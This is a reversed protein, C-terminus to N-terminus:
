SVEVPEKEPDDNDETKKAIPGTIERNPFRFTLEEGDESADVQVRGGQELRGFLIEDALPEKLHEHLVRSMARAGFRSDYGREGLWARAAETLDFTVDREDLQEELEMVFKDVVRLIASQALKGFWVVADLRNRFEPSFINNLAGSAQDSSSGEVFGLSGRGM